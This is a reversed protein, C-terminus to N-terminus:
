YSREEYEYIYNMIIYSPVELLENGNPATAFPYYLSNYYIYGDYVHNKKDGPLISGEDYYYNDMLEVDSYPSKIFKIGKYVIKKIVMDPDYLNLLGTEGIIVEYEEDLTTINFMAGIPAEIEVKNLSIFHKTEDNNMNNFKSEISLALDENIDATAAYQGLCMVYGLTSLKNPDQRKTISCVYDVTVDIDNLGNTNDINFSSNGNEQKIDYFEAIGFKNVFRSGILYGILIASNEMTSNGNYQAIQEGNTEVRYPNSNFTVKLYKINQDSLEEEWKELHKYVHNSLEEIINRTSSRPISINFQGMVEENLRPDQIIERKDIINYQELNDVTVDDVEYATASFNYLMRGLTQIPEFSVDMLRVLINGETLSRFLKADDAYLFDYIIKRFEKEYIYDGYRSICNDENFQDYFDKYNKYIDQRTVFVGEEDCFATILGSIPFQRYGVHANRRIHPYQSGITDIRSEAITKRYSSINPNYKVKLQFNNITLFADDAYTMLYGDTQIMNSTNSKNDLKQVGYRYMIGSEVTYDTWKFSKVENEVHIIEWLTFDSKNSSRRLVLNGLSSAGQLQFDINIANNESDAEANLTANLKYTDKYLIIFNYEKTFYYDNATYFEIIMKYSSGNVLMYDLHYNIENPNYDNTYIKKTQYIINDNSDKLTVQYSKLTEKENPEDKYYLNGVLDITKLTLLSSSENELLDFYKLTIRPQTIGKLLCVRSWESFYSTNNALWRITPAYVDGNESEDDEESPVVEVDPTSSSCFRFQVKLYTNVPIEELYKPDITITLKEKNSVVTDSNTVLPIVMIENAFKKNDLMSRNNSLSKVLVQIYKIDSLNNYKSLTVPINIKKNRIFIEYDEVIPPYLKSNLTANTPTDTIQTSM